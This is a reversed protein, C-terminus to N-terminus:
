PCGEDAPLPAACPRLLKTMWGTADRFLPLTALYHIAVAGLGAITWWWVLERVMWFAVDVLDAIADGVLSRLLDALLRRIGESWMLFLVAAILRSLLAAAAGGGASKRLELLGPLVLLFYIGRYNVNQGAFFCATLLLSGIGALRADRTTWDIPIAALPVLARRMRAAAVAALVFLLAMAFPTAHPLKLLVQLLGFPLNKASFTDSYFAANPVNHLARLLEGDYYGAFAAFAGVSLLVIFLWDRRRERAVLLLLVATYYKLLSAVIIVLYSLFRFRRQSVPILAACLVLLFILLDNNGREFAYVTMPSFFSIALLALEAKNRPRLVLPMAAIFLLELSIAAWPTSSAKLAPPILRLWLPSYVHNLWMMCHNAQYVNIGQRRCEPAGLLTHMDLFPIPGPKIGLSRFLALCASQYGGLWLLATVGLACLAAAPIVSRYGWRIPRRESLRGALM